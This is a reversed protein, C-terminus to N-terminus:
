IDFFLSAMNTVNSVDWDGIAINRLNPPIRTRNTLYADVLSHINRDDIVFSTM